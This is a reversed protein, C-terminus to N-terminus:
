GAIKVETTSNAGYFISLSKKIIFITSTKFTNRVIGNKTRSCSGCLSGSCWGVDPIEMDGRDGGWDM